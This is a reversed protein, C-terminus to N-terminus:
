LALKHMSDLLHQSPHLEGQSRHAAGKMLFQILAVDSAISIDQFDVNYLRLTNMYDNSSSTIIADTVNATDKKLHESFNIINSM